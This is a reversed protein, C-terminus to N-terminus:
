DAKQDENRDKNTLIIEPMFSCTKDDKNNTPFFFWVFTITGLIGPNLKDNAYNAFKIFCGSPKNLIIFNPGFKGCFHKNIYMYTGFHVSNTCIM